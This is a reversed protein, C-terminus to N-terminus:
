DSTSTTTHEPHAARQELIREFVPATDSVSNGIVRLVEASATQQELAEQTENFLRMNEIAILAQDRFSEALAIEKDSFTRARSNGFSLLGICEDGRLLPLYLASAVGFAEHIGREHEPLEIAGWDPLHLMTKSAATRAPFNHEPDLPLEPMGVDMPGAPTAGAEVSIGSTKVRFVFSM